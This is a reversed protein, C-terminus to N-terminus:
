CRPRGLPAAIGAAAAGLVFTRRNIVGPEATLTVLKLVNEEAAVAALSEPMGIGLNIVGGLPLEFACRRGITKRENLEM